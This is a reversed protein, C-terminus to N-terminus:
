WCASGRCWHRVCPGTHSSIQFRTGLFAKQNPFRFSGRLSIQAVFSSFGGGWLVLQCLELEMKKWLKKSIMGLDSALRPSPMGKDWVVDSVGSGHKAELIPVRLLKPCFHRFFLMEPPPAGLTQSIIKPRPGSQGLDQIRAQARHPVHLVTFSLKYSAILVKLCIFVLCHSM